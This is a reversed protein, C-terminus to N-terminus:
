IMFKVLNIVIVRDNCPFVKKMSVSPLMFFPCRNSIDYNDANVNYTSVTYGLLVNSGGVPSVPCKFMVKDNVSRM